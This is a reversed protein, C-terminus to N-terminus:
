PSVWNFTLTLYLTNGLRNNILYAKDSVISRFFDGEDINFDWNIRYGLQASLWILRTLPREYTLRIRLESRRLELENLDTQFVNNRNSLRYTNGELEYGFFLLNNKNINRRYQVRGPVLGELGWKGNESTYFYYLVPFYNLAGALYSRSAGLGWMLRDHPKWGFVVAANYRTYELSQFESFTYDGNLAAGAQFLLFHKLNLPKFITVNFALSRLGNERLSQLLPHNLESENEFQYLQEAYGLGLNLLFSNKSIVPYNVALRLGRNFRIRSAEESFNGFSGANLDNTFQFDYGITILKQPSQGLVRSSCFAKIKESAVMKSFDVQETDGEEEIITTDNQANTFLSFFLLFLVIPTTYINM